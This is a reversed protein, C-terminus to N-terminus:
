KLSDEGLCRPEEGHRHNSSDSRGPTQPRTQHQCEQRELESKWVEFVSVDRGAGIQKALYYGKKREKHKEYSDILWPVRQKLQGKWVM